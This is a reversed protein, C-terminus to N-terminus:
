DGIGPPLDEPQLSPRSMQRALASAVARLERVNGPWTHRVLRQAMASSIRPVPVQGYLCLLHRLLVPIDEPHERLPPIKLHLTNLQYFLPEAFRGRVVQEFLDIAATTIIRVPRYVSARAGHMPAAADDIRRQLRAQAVAAMREAHQIMVTGRPLAREFAEDIRAPSNPADPVRVHALPAQARGSEQHVRLAISGKGVGAEGTILVNLDFQVAREIDAELDRMASSVWRISDYRPSVRGPPAM